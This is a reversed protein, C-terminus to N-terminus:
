RGGAGTSGVWIGLRGEFREGGKGEWTSRGERLTKTQPIVVEYNLM